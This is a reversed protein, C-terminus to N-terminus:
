RLVEDDATWMVHDPGASRVEMVGSSIQHFFIPQDWRDILQGKDNIQADAPIYRVGLSNKGSLARAIERNNGVPNKSFAIRYNRVSMAANQLQPDPESEVLQRSEVSKVPIFRPRDSLAHINPEAEDPLTDPAKWSPVPQAISTVNFRRANSSQTQASSSNPQDPSIETTANVPSQRPRNLAVLVIGFVLAVLLSIFIARAVPTFKNM